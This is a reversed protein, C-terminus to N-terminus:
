GRPFVPASALDARVDGIGPLPSRDLRERALEGLLYGLPGQRLMNATQAWPAYPLGGDALAAVLSPRALYTGALLAIGGAAALAAHRRFALNAVVLGALLLPPIALTVIWRLDLVRALESAAPFDSPRIPGGLVVVRLAQAGHCALVLVAQALALLVPRRAVALLAYALVLQAVLEGPPLLRGHPMGAISRVAKGCVAVLFPTSLLPLLLVWGDRGGPVSTPGLGPARKERRTELRDVETAM